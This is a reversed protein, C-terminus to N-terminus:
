QIQLAGGGARAVRETVRDEDGIGAEAADGSWPALNMIWLSKGSSEGERPTPTPSAPSPASPHPSKELAKRLGEGRRVSEPGEPEELSGPHELKRGGM